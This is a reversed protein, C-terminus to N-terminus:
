PMIKPSCRCQHVYVCVHVVRSSVQEQCLLTVVLCESLTACRRTVYYLTSFQAQVMPQRKMACACGFMCVACGGVGVWAFQVWRSGCGGVGVGVVGGVGM